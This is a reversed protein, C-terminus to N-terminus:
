RDRAGAPPGDAPNGPTLPFAMVTAGVRVAGPTHPALAAAHLGDLLAGLNRRFGEWVAPDLWLEADTTIGELDPARRGAREGGCQQQPTRRGPTFIERVRRRKRHRDTPRIRAERVTVPLPLPTRPRDAAPSRTSSRGATGDGTEAEGPAM